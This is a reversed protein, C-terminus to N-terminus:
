CAYAFGKSGCLGDKQNFATSDGLLFTYCLRPFYCMMSIIFSSSPPIAL